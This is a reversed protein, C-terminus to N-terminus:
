FILHTVHLYASTSVLFVHGLFARLAPKSRLTFRSKNIHASTQFPLCLHHLDQHSVNKRVHKCKYTDNMWFRTNQTSLAYRTGSKPMHSRPFLYLLPLVSSCELHTKKMVKRNGKLLKTM